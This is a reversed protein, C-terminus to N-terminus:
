RGRRLPEVLGPPPRRPRVDRAHQLPVALCSCVGGSEVDLFAVVHYRDTDLFARKMVRDSTSLLRPIVDDGGLTRARRRELHEVHRRYNDILAWTPLRDELIEIPLGLDLAAILAAEAGHAPDLVRRLAQREAADALVPRPVGAWHCAECIM